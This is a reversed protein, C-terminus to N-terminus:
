EKKTIMKISIHLFSDLYKMMIYLDVISSDLPLVIGHSIPYAITYMLTSPFLDPVTDQLLKGLTLKRTVGTLIPQLVKNSLPLHIKIPLNKLNGINDPLLKRFMTEYLLSDRLIMSKFFRDTQAKPMNMMIKSSGNLIYCTEKLQNIWYNKLFEADSPPDIPIIYEVPYKDHKLMIEWVDGERLNFLSKSGDDPVTTLDYLLGVPLNWKLPVSEFEFWWDNVDYLLPNKLNTKFFNLLDPLISHLYSNRPITTYYEAIPIDIENDPSNILPLTQLPDLTFKVNLTGDWVRSIIDSSSM